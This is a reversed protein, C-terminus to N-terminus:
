AHDRVEAEAKELWFNMGMERYMTTATTLHEHVKAGDGTRRYLRGLGLHCHAVLPRMGLEGALVLAERYYGEADNAGGTSAVDGALCLAHVESARAGLRRSLTLAERAHSRADDIRGASLCALGACLLIHAPRQHFPRRRFEEVAGAILPLAEDTRGGLAYAAGLTAALVPTGVVFQWTRCLDHSRELVPTARPFDGRRLYALGLGLLAHYRTLPHDAAEAIQVAAEAHGIAEDFRGLQSLV